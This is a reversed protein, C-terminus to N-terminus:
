QFYSSHVSSELLPVFFVSLISLIFCVMYFYAAKEGKLGFFRRLHLYVGFVIWTILAWTEIPDWAWFRGWSQYAWISGALTTITWFTFGYGAFRYSYLDLTELEPLRQLWKIETNKKLIYFISFALAILMTGLSVKIFGVHLVLWISKLAPPLENIKPNFFLALGTTLLVVPFVIISAPRIKPYIKSFILFLFLAIWADSSVVEYRAMYPGHGAITWRYIIGAGHSFLGAIVIGYSLKETKENHFIIGHSNILIAIAYVIVAAWHLGTEIYLTNNM